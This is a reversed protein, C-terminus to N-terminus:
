RLVKKKESWEDKADSFSKRESSRMKLYRIINEKSLMENKKTDSGWNRRQLCRGWTNSWVKRRHSKRKEQILNLKREKIMKKKTYSCSKRRRHDCKWTDFEEKRRCYILKKQILDEIEERYADNKLILDYKGETIIGRKKYWIASEKESLHRKIDSCSKRRQHDGKWTDCESNRKYYKAKEEILVENSKKDYRKWQNFRVQM